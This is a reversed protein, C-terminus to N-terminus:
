VVVDLTVSKGVYHLMRGYKGYLHRGDVLIFPNCHKFAEICPPYSWFVKDFQSCNPVMVHGDYYPVDSLDCITGACCSKEYSLKFHYSQRVTSQLVPISVSPSSQILPLILRGILHSDLQRHDQSM